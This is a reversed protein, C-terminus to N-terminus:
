GRKARREKEAAVAADYEALHDLPMCDRCLRCYVDSFGFFGIFGGILETPTDCGENECTKVQSEPRYKVRM